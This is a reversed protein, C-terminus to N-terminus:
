WFEPKKGPRGELKLEKAKEIAEQAVKSGDERQDIVLTSRPGLILEGGAIMWALDNATLRLVVYPM